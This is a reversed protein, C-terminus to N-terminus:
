FTSLRSFVQILDKSEIQKFGASKAIRELEDQQFPLAETLVTFQLSYVTFKSLQKFLQRYHNLGDEGSFLAIKPEHMISIDKMSEPVYPLNALIVDYENKDNDLLNQLNFKISAKLNKANTSALKLAQESIDTACVEISPYQLKVTIALCGSGTGVDLVSKFGNLSGLLEIFSESESRPVLVDKNVIFNRGYFEKHGLIYAVPENKTRRDIKKTLEVQQQSPLEDDGHAQLWSRDVGLLDATIVEADLRATRISSNNFKLVAENIFSGVTM